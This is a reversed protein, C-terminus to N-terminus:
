TAEMDQSNYQVKSYLFNGNQKRGAEILDSVISASNDKREKEGKVGVARGLGSMPKGKNQADLVMPMLGDRRLTWQMAASCNSSSPSTLKSFHQTVEGAGPAGPLRHSVLFGTTIVSQCVESNGMEDNVQPSQRHGEIPLVGLKSSLAKGTWVSGLHM